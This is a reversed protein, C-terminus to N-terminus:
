NQIWPTGSVLIPDGSANDSVSAYALVRGVEYSTCRVWAFGASVTRDVLGAYVRNLQVAEYPALRLGWSGVSTGDGLYLVVSVTVHHGSVNLLGINTRYRDSTSPSSAM